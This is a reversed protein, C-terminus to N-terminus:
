NGAKQTIFHRAAERGAIFAGKVNTEWIRTFDQETTDILPASYGIGANNILVNLGDLKTLAFEFLSKVAAENSIDANFGIVDLEDSANKLKKEDRGTIVVMAGNKRLLKAIEYGIGSSGGTVIVKANKIDM